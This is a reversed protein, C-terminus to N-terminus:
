FYSLDRLINTMGMMIENSEQNGGVTKKSISFM